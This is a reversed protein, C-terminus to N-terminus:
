GAAQIVAMRLARGVGPLRAGVMGFSYGMYSFIFTAYFYRM